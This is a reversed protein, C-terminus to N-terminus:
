NTGVTDAPTTNRLYWDAEHEIPPTDGLASHLRAANYWDIWEVIAFETRTRTRWPGHRHILEAKFTGNLAEAMANDFSDGVSGISAAIGADRLRDAYRISTYQGPEISRLM